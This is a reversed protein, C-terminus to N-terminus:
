YTARGGSLDFVAGTSFSCEDSALWAVLSAVEAPQGPRGLPIKGLVYTRVDDPMQAVLPSDIVAPVVTNALIGTGALEKGLSKTLGIVGAKAASYASQNPNGEKGAISAITVIRGYGAARMAPIVARCCLFTGTLNIEVTRRWADPLITELPQNPGITGASTVLIDIGGLADATRRAAEDVSAPDTVDIPVADVYTVDIRSGHETRFRDLAAEPAPGPLDWLSVRAGSQLLRAAVALGIGGAGGTVVAKRDQLDIRNM